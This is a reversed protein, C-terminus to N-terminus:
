QNPDPDPNSDPNPDLIIACSNWAFTTDRSQESSLSKTFAMEEAISLGTADRAADLM